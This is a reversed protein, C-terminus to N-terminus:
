IIFKYNLEQNILKFFLRSVKTSSGQSLYKLIRLKLIYPISSVFSSAQGVNKKRIQCKLGLTEIYQFM